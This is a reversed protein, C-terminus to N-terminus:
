EEARTPESSNEAARAAIRQLLEQRMADDLLGRKFMRNVAARDQWIEVKARNKARYEVQYENVNKKTM